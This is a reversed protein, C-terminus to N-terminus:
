GLCRGGLVLIPLDVSPPEGSRRSPLRLSRWALSNESIRSVGQASIPHRLSDARVAQPIASGFQRFAVCPDIALSASFDYSAGDGGDPILPLNMNEGM